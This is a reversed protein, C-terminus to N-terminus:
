ARNDQFFQVSADIRAVGTDDRAKLAVEFSGSSNEDGIEVVPGEGAAQESAQCGFMVVPIDPLGTEGVIGQHGHAGRAAADSDDSGVCTIKGEEGLEARETPL